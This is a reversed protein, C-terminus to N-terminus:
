PAGPGDMLPALLVSKPFRRAFALAAQRAEASRHAGILSKVRLAERQEALHSDPYGRAHETVLDLAVTFDRRAYAAHARTLLALEAEAEAPPEGPSPLQRATHSTAPATAPAAPSDGAPAPALWRHLAAFAGLGGALVVVLGVAAFGLRRRRTVLRPAVPVPVRGTRPRVVGGAAVIEEARALARAHVAALARRGIRRGEVFAQLRPDLGARRRMM